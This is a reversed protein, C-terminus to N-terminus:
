KSVELNVGGRFGPHLSMFQYLVTGSSNMVRVQPGGGTMPTIIIDATGNADVDTVKLDAGGRFTTPFAFFQKELGSPGYVQIHAGGLVPAVVVEAQNDGDVDGIGAKLGMRWATNYAFGSLLTTGEYNVVRYQPGGNGAPTLALDQSGDGNYDGLAINVGGRFGTPFAFFQSVLGGTGSFIRVHPAAGQRTATIIEDEGDGNVDGAYVNIGTRLTQAYAFFSSHLSLVGAAYKYVRVQPGGNATPAVIIEQSGDGDVDGLSLSYTGRFTTAYIFTGALVEGSSTFVRLHPAALGSPLTVIEDNGDGDLDGMVAKVGTRLTPAYAMFGAQRTGNSDWTTVQPGGGVKPATVINKETVGGIDDTGTTVAFDTFHDIMINIINNETDQVINDPMKWTSSAEDWYRGIIKAEDIGMERLIEEDYKITITVNSNFNTTVSQGSSDTLEFSWAFGLAPKAEPTHYLNINPSATLTYTGSTAVANAPITIMSGDPLNIVTLTSADFSQSIGQPIEFSSKRLVFDKSINDGVAELNIQMEDSRFFEQGNMSDCGVYWTGRTLPISYSGNFVQGGSFGGEPNWAHCFGMSMESGNEDTVSGKVTGESERFQLTINETAGSVIMIEANEPPMYQAMNPPLGAGCTYEGAVIPLKAVGSLNTEGGAHLVEGGEFSGKLENEKQKMNDCWVWAYTVKSGDPDLVTINLNANAKHVKLTKVVRSSAPVVVPSQDPQGQVYGATRINYGLFYSSGGKVSLRYSGDANIFSHYGMGKMEGQAFVDGEVNTIVAGSSADRLYGVIESDNHLLVVSISKTQGVGIYAEVEKDLALNMESPVNVGCVYTEGGIVPISVPNASQGGLGMGFDSGPGPMADAKRCYAYGNINGAKVGNMDLITLKATADTQILRFNVGTVIQDNETISIRNPEGQQILGQQGAEMQDVMIEWDGKYTWITYNGNANTRGEGWGNQGWMNVRLGSVPSGSDDTVKGKIAATKEKLTLTGVNKTQDNGITINLPDVYFQANQSNVSLNYTGALVPVSFAGDNGLNTGSGQGQQNRIDVRYEWPNAPVAGNALLVKGMVSSTAKVVSFNQTYTGAVNAEVYSDSGEYIWDTTVRQGNINKADLHVQWTGASTLGLNYHGSGDCDANAWEQAGQKNANIACTTVAGGTKYTVDGNIFKDIGLLLASDNQAGGIDNWGVNDSFGGNFWASFTGAVSPNVVNNIKIKILANEPISYAGNIILDFNRINDASTQLETQGAPVTVYSEGTYVRVYGGTLTANSFDIEANPNEAGRYNIGTFFQINHWVETTTMEPIHNLTIIYSTTEDLTTDGAYVSISPGATIAQAFNVNMFSFPGVLSLVTLFNLIIYLKKKM